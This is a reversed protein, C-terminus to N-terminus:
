FSADRAAFSCSVPGRYRGGAGRMASCRSSASASCSARVVAGARGQHGCGATTGYNTLVITLDNIDVKGDDNFDGTSWTM